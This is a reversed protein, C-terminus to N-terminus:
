EDAADSTYLLCIKIWEGNVYQLGRNLNGCTGTNKETTVLKCDIFRQQHEQLWNSCLQLTNDKSGDDAIILQLTAWSQRRISELTDIVFEASNYTVVLITVTPQM